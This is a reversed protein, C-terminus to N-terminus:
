LEEVQLLRRGPRPSAEDFEQDALQLVRRSHRLPLPASSCIPTLAEIAVLCAKPNNSRALEDQFNRIFRQAAYARYAPAVSVSAGRDSDGTFVDAPVGVGTLFGNLVQEMIEGRVYQEIGWDLEFLDNRVGRITDAPQPWSEGPDFVDQQRRVSEQWLLELLNPETRPTSVLTVVTQSPGNGLDVGATLTRRPIPILIVDGELPNVPETPM